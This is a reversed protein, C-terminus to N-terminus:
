QLVEELVDMGQQVLVQDAQSGMHGIRFVKGALPGYNGGVVMGRARLQQDLTPWDWGVPMRAATVTPACHEEREPWLDIGMGHLRHRCYRAVTTHREYVKDLGETLLSNIVVRLSALAPWNHTYPMYREQVVKRWPLLADYGAYRVRQIHAWARESVSVMSLDPMLSLVKQSGLLGLDIHNADVEVPTGGASAVFDVYFLADVERAIQGLPGLPNLTGSPTECHVATVLHPRFRRAAVRVRQPDAIGAYGFGVTEVQAGLQAAMEGIGYGFLGSAVALVRNGPQLVSKLAGWLALMGEGSHITVSNQTGLITQLGRECEAYLDFFEAELDASGYDVQYAARVAAPVRVPGPVLPIPYSQMTAGQHHPSDIEPSRQITRQVENELKISQFSQVATQQAQMADEVRGQAAYIHSLARQAYGALYPDDNLISLSISQSVLQEAESFRGQKCRIEGLTRYADPLLDGEEADIAVMVCEEAQGLNGLGWHAEAEAQKLLADRWPLPPLGSQRFETEAAQITELAQHHEGALNFVFAWNIKNSFFDSFFQLAQLHQDAETLHRKAETFKGLRASLTALNISTKALGDHYGLEEALQLATLYSQEAASYDCRAELVYGSFNEAEYRALQVERWATDMERNRMAMWGFEKRIHTLRAEVLANATRLASQCLQEAQTFESLDSHISAELLDAEVNLVPTKRLITRIDRLAQPANGLVHELRACLLKVTQQAAVSVPLDIAARLIRLAAASQGLNIEQEQNDRWRWIAQEAEGAEIYHYAASTYLGRAQCVLAANKHLIRRHEDELQAYIVVRYAPLLYTGGAEDRHLLRRALLAAWAQGTHANDWVDIPATDPYVAIEKLVQCEAQDLRGLIRSLLYELPPADRLDDLLETVSEKHLCLIAALEILRPNGQTYRHLTQLQSSPLTIGRTQLMVGMEEKRLGELPCIFDADLLGQQGILLLPSLGRLGTILQVIQSHEGSQAPQLLDVEDFCLLPSVSQQKLTELAHRIIALARDLNVAEPQAILQSWLVPRQHRQLFFGLAFLLHNPHDNLGPRVTFWFTLSKGWEHALQSGLATKGIGGPGTIMVSHGKHLEQSCDSLPQHRAVLLQGAPMPAELRLAPNLLTTLALALAKIAKRLNQFFANRELGFKEFLQWEDPRQTYSNGEKYLYRARLMERFRDANKENQIREIALRIVRCLAEGRPQASDAGPALYEHLLYPSALVSSQGLVGPHYFQKLARELEDEFTTADKDVTRNVSPPKPSMILGEMFVCKENFFRVEDRLVPFISLSLV